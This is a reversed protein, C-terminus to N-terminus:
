LDNVEDSLVNQGEAIKRKRLTTILDTFEEKLRDIEEGLVRNHAPKHGDGEGEREREGEGEGEEHVRRNLDQLEQQM